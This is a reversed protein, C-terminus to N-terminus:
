PQICMHTPIFCGRTEDRGQVAVKDDSVILDWMQRERWNRQFLLALQMNKFETLMSHDGISDGAVLVPDKGHHRPAIHARIFEPKHRSKM